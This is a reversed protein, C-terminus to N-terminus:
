SEIVQFFKQNLTSKVETIVCYMCKQTIYESWWITKRKSIINWKAKNQNSYWPGETSQYITSHKWSYIKSQINSWISCEEPQDMQELLQFKKWYLWMELSSKRNQHNIVAVECNRYSPIWFAPSPWWVIKATDTQLGWCQKGNGM